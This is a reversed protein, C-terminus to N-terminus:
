QFLQLFWSVAQLGQLLTFIALLISAVLSFRKLMQSQCKRDLDAYYEVEKLHQSYVRELEDILQDIQPDMVTGLFQQLRETSIMRTNEICSRLLRISWNQMYQKIHELLNEISTLQSDSKKVLIVRDSIAGERSIDKPFSFFLNHVNRFKLFYYDSFHYPKIDIEIQFKVDSIFL